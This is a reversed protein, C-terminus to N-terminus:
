AGYVALYQDPNTTRFLNLAESFSIHKEAALVKVQEALSARTLEQGSAGHGVENLPVASNAPRESFMKWFIPQTAKADFAAEVAAQEAPSVKGERLLATVAERREIARKEADIAALKESLQKNAARLTNIESLLTAESMMKAKPKEGDVVIVAPKEEEEPMEAEPMEGEAMKDEPMEAKLSAEAATQMDAIKQELEKVMADKAVLAAKLEEPSMEAINDM